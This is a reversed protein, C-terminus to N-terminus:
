KERQEWKKNLWLANKKISRTNGWLLLASFMAPSPILNIILRKETKNALHRALYNFKTMESAGDIYTNGKKGTSKNEYGFDYTKGNNMYVRFRKNIKPSNTIKVIM